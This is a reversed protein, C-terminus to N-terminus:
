DGGREGGPRIAAPPNTTYLRTLADALQNREATSLRASSHILKYQLPPMSGSRVADVVRSLEPQAKDWESFNLRRRGGNVDNRALWSAPAIRTGWWWNTLNSHCDGCAGGALAASEANPWVAAKTVPPNTHDHGFPVLQILGFVALLGLTGRVV